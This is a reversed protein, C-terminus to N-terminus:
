LKFDGSAVPASQPTYPEIASLEQERFGNPASRLVCPEQAKRYREAEEGLKTRITVHEVGGGDIVHFKVFTQGAKQHNKGYSKTEREVKAIYNSLSIAPQAAPVSVAPTVSTAPVTTTAQASAPENPEAPTVTPTPQVPTVFSAPAATSSAGVPVPELRRTSIDIVDAPATTLMRRDSGAYLAAVGALKNATVQRRVEPDTMDVLPCVRLAVFPRELESVTYAHKIGFGMRTAREMAGTEAREAGNMRAQLVRQESWGNIQPKDVHQRILERWGEPTWGGIQASGDRYDIEKEGHITQPTGDYALYVGVVQYIWLHQITLPDRRGSQSGIWSTGAAAAIKGIGIKALGREHPGMTRKDYYVDLGRGKDDVTHDLLVLSANVGYGSAFTSVQISPALVHFGRAKWGIMKSALDEPQTIFQGLDSQANRMPETAAVSLM